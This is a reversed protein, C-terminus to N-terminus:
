LPNQSIKALKFNMKGCMLGVLKARIAKYNHMSFQTAVVVVVVIVVIVPWIVKFICM